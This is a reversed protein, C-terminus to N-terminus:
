IIIRIVLGIIGIFFLFIGFKWMFIETNNAWEISAAFGFFVAFALGM